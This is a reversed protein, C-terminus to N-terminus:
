QVVSYGGDCQRGDDMRRDMLGVKYSVTLPILTLKEFLYSDVMYGPIKQKLIKLNKNKKIFKKRKEKVNYCKRQFHM